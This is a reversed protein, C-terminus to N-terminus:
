HSGHASPEANVSGTQGVVGGQGPWARPGQVKEERREVGPSHAAAWSQAGEGPGRLCTSKPSGEPGM